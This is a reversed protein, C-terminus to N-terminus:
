QETFFIFQESKDTEPRLYDIRVSNKVLSM